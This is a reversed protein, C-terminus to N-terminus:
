SVWLGNFHNHCSICELIQDKNPGSICRTFSKQDRGDRCLKMATWESRRAYLRQDLFVFTKPTCSSTPCSHRRNLPLCKEKKEWGPSWFSLNRIPM